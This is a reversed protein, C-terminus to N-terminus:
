FGINLDVSFRNTDYTSLQWTFFVQFFLPPIRGLGVGIESYWDPAAVLSEGPLKISADRFDSWFAGGYLLLSFPIREILPLRSRRFLTAGFDHSLYGMAARDGTFNTENFTKFQSSYSGLAEGYDFTFYRQPPLARDSGGAYIRLLTTGWGALRRMHFLDLYYRRFHFDNDIVEPDAQEIGLGLTTFPLEGVPLDRGKTRILQRSDYELTATLSRLHGNVIGPNRRHHEDAGVFGYDTANAVSYQNVDWYGAELKFHRLPQFGFGVSFGKELYYDLADVKFALSSLTPNARGSFIAPRSIILDHYDVFSYLKARENLETRLRYRHQWYEGDFAWGTRAYLESRPILGRFTYGAGLYPGEVSTFHFYPYVVPSTTAALALFPAATAISKLSPPRGEVSDIHQYGSAEEETLPVLAGLDWTTSDVADAGTVVEIAYEDFVGPPVGRNFEVNSLIAVYYGTLDPIPLLPVKMDGGFRIEVPMWIDDEFRAIRQSYRLNRVFPIEFASNFGVDVGAVAYTSDAILIEGVFLPHVDNKPEIELRFASVGDVLVTDLLYYNYFDLADTATPSVIAQHGLDIRNANFNFVEGVTMLNDDAKINASQRRATIIEKYEDPRRFWGQLQTETILFFEDAKDEKLKRLALKTYADFRYDQIKDLLEKKRRIAEVIIEQAPDYQRSYVRTGPLEIVSSHLYVNRTLLSDAIEVDITTSYHAVHSFRIRHTGPELRLRYRGDENGLMAQGTGEIRITVRPIPQFTASDYVVGELVGAGAPAAALLLGILFTASIQFPGCLRLLLTRM